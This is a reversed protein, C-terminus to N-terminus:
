PHPSLYVQLEVNHKGDFKDLYTLTAKVPERPPDHIELRVQNERDHYLIDPLRWSGNNSNNSNGTVNTGSTNRNSPRQRWSAEFSRQQRMQHSNHSTRQVIPSDASENTSSYEGSAKVQDFTQFQDDEEVVGKETDQPAGAAGDFIATSDITPERSASRFPTGPESSGRRKSGTVSGGTTMRWSNRVLRVTSPMCCAMQSLIASINTYLGLYSSYHTINFKTTLGHIYFMRVIDMALVALGVLFAWSM